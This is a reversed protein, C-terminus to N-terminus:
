AHRSWRGRRTASAASTASANAATAGHGDGRATGRLVLLGQGGYAAAMLREMFHASEPFRDSGLDAEIDAFTQRPRRQILARSTVAVGEYCAQVADSQASHLPLHLVRSAWAGLPRPSAPTLPVGISGSYFSLTFDSLESVREQPCSARVGDGPAGRLPHRLCICRFAGGGGVDNAAGSSSEGGGSGSDNRPPENVWEELADWRDHTGGAPNSHSGNALPLAVFFVRDTLREYHLSVHHAFTHQEVGVNPLDDCAVLRREASSLHPVIAGCSTSKSYLWVRCGHPTALHRVLHLAADPQSFESVVFSCTASAEEDAPALVGGDGGGRVRADVRAAFLLLSLASSRMRIGTSGSATSGHAM